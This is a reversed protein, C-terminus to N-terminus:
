CEQERCKRARIIAEDTEFVYALCREVKRIREECDEIQLLRHFPTHNDAAWEEAGSGEPGCVYFDSSVNQFAGSGIYDVSEPLLVSTLNNCNAFAKPGITTIGENVVVRTILDHVNYWPYSTATSYQTM